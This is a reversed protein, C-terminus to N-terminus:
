VVDALRLRKSAHAIIEIPLERVESDWGEMGNEEILDLIMGPLREVLADLTEAEASLGPIDSHEVYWVRAEPDYTAKVVILRMASEKKNVNPRAAAGVVM